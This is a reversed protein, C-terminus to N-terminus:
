LAQALCFALVAVATGLLLERATHRKLHLSAWFEAGYLLLCPVLFGMGVRTILFLHPLTGSCAHGSAKIHFFRNLISLLLVASFYAAYIELLAPACARALGFLLGAAYGCLSLSFALERQGERDRLRTASSLPYALAPVAALFLLALLWEAPAAPALHGGAALVILMAATLVPPVTAARIFAAIKEKRM